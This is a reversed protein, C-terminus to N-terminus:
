PYYEPNHELHITIWDNNKAPDYPDLELFKGTGVQGGADMIQCDIANVNFLTQLIHTFESLEFKQLILDNEIEQRDEISCFPSSLIYDILSVEKQNDM